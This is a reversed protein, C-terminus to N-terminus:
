GRPEGRKRYPLGSGAAREAAEWGAAETVLVAQAWPGKDGQKRIYHILTPSPIQM